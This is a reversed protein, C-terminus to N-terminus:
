AAAVEGAGESNIAFALEPDREALDVATHAAANIICGPQAQMIAPTASGPKRLDIDSRDAFEMVVGAPLRESGLARGLQGDKGIVLVKVQGHGARFSAQGREFARKLM